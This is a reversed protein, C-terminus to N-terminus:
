AAGSKVLPAPFRAQWAFREPRAPHCAPCRPVRFVPHRQARAAGFQYEVFGGLTSPPRGTLIQSLEVAVLGAIAGRFVPHAPLPEPARDSLRARYATATRLEPEGGNSLLRATACELCATNQPLVYPGVRGIAGECVGFLAPRGRELALENLMRALPMRWPVDWVVLPGGVEDLAARVSSLVSGCASDVEVSIRHVSIGSEGLAEALLPASAAPAVLAVARQALMREVGEPDRGTTAWFASRPSLPEPLRESSTYLCGVNFMLDLVYAALGESEGTREVARALAAARTAGGRLCEVLAGVLAVVPVGTFSATHNALSVHLEDASIPLAHAGPRLYIREGPSRAVVREAESM